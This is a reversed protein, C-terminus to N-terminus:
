WGRPSSKAHSFPNLYSLFYYSGSMTESAKQSLFAAWASPNTREQQMKVGGQFLMDLCHRHTLGFETSMKAAVANAETLFGELVENIRTNKEQARIRREERQAAPIPPRKRPPRVRPHLAAPVKGNESSM